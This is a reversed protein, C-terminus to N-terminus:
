LSFSKLARHGTGCVVLSNTGTSRIVGGSMDSSRFLKVSNVPSAM